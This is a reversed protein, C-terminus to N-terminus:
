RRAARAKPLSVLNAMLRYAGPVGAPLQRFWAYGTYVYMGRGYEAVLTGGPKPEEGADRSAILPKYRADWESMFYTGREQVWGEFDRESIRNPYNLLPSTADIVTVAAREDTVRDPVRNMKLPYPAFNGAAYEGKNYQVIMTGGGKVYDLLRNNNAVVDPRVEYVRIGTVIVDYVGLDGTALERPEIIKVDVGLRKLAAAFDDGAGEIYGVKLGPAVKVDLESARAVAGRYVFRPETHPYAIAQYGRRYEAGGVTAVAKVERRSEEASPPATITFTFSASESERKLDFSTEASEVRWTPHAEVGVTGSAGAKSNNVVSVIVERKVPTSSLPFILLEPSMSVSVAPAVKLEHRIEGLAKDAYRFQAPQRLTVKQGNAELEVEALVDPPALPEIGTGGKGPVFLDGRRPNKLWYPETPEANPAVTVKFDTQSVLRGDRVSSNSKQREASWGPPVSLSVAAPNVGGAAYAAVTVNFAQGPVVVEDDSLCDVVVGEAKALADAFDQEKQKLLFDTEYLAAESLGLTSLAARIKRIRELGRAIIPSVASPRNPNYGEKAEAASRAVDALAEALAPASGDAYAGIGQLSTDIGGFIDKEAESQAPSQTPGQTSGEAPAPPPASEVIKLRSYRPGRRQLTGQDQSRHMSRGEMAIEYYSRGYLPDFRGTNILLFGPEPEGTPERNGDNARTYLRRAKWPRLGSAVQEPFRSPDAAARFAEMTLFGAAQHHGHGDRPTGSWASVIVLPRFMRIVRVMDSLVAERDWKQLAEDRSKSFGFDYARSFFQGAGDIRRAAMMEETRIVGLLEFLEPGILNQGGDGRTLSLYATSAQRGRALYALLGSDEDDPHAGTHLVSAVVGLRNIAEALAVAGANNNVVPATGAGAAAGRAPALHAALSTAILLALALNARKRPERRNFV